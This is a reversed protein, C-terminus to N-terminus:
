RWPPFRSSAMFLGAMWLRRGSWLSVLGFLMLSVAVVVTRRGPPVTRPVFSTYENFEVEVHMQVYAPARASSNEIMVMYDGPRNILQRLRGKREEGSAGLVSYPRGKSFNEVDQRSMVVVRVPANGRVVEFRCHVTAPRQHLSVHVARWQSRPLRVIEDFLTLSSPAAAAALLILGAIM